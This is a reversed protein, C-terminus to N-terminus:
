FLLLSMNRIKAYPSTFFHKLIASHNVEETNVKTHFEKKSFSPTFPNAFDSDSDSDSKEEESISLCNFSNTITLVSDVGNFTHKEQHHFKQETINNGQKNKTLTKPLACHETDNLSMKRTLDTRLMALYSSESARKHKKGEKVSTM